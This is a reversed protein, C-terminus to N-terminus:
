ELVRNWWNYLKVLLNSFTMIKPIDLTATSTTALIVLGTLHADPMEPYGPLEQSPLCGLHGPQHIASTGTTNCAM